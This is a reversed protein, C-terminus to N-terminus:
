MNKSHKLFCASLIHLKLYQFNKDKPNSDSLFVEFEPAYKVIEIASNYLNLSNQSNSINYLFSFFVIALIRM